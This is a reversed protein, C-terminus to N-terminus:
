LNMTSPRKPWFRRSAPGPGWFGGKCYIYGYSLFFKILKNWHPPKHLFEFFFFFLIWLFFFFFSFSFSFSPFHWFSSFLFPEWWIKLLSIYPLFVAKFFFFLHFFFKQQISIGFLTSMRIFRSFAETLASKSAWAWCAPSEPGFSGWCHIQLSHSASSPRSLTFTITLLGHLWKFM